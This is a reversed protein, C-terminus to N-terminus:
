KILYGVNFEFVVPFFGSNNESDTYFIPGISFSYGLRKKYHQFGFCPSLSYDPTAKRRFTSEIEKGRVLGRVSVFSGSNNSVNKGKEVRKARNFFYRTQLDAFPSLLLQWGTEFASQKGEPYSGGTFGVGAQASITFKRGLPFEYGIGPNIISLTLNSKLKPISDTSEQAFISASYCLYILLVITKKM